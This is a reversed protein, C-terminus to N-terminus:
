KAVTLSSALGPFRRQINDTHIEILCFRNITPEFDISFRFGKFYFLILIVIVIHLNISHSKNKHKKPSM